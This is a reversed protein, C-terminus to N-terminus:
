RQNMYENIGNVMGQVMKAQYDSSSMLRDEEPNSMFGMEVITSPVTCWNIGSMADTRWVGRNQAGTISAMQNVVCQSLKSSSPYLAACYPNQATQCATLVGHISTDNSGNIHIRIFVDAKANNAIEAREKNSINVDHSERVMIVQYGQASLAQKLQKAVALTVQYEPIKTVIGTTGSAVKPKQVSAGPGIPELSSNGKGQHGADIVIVGSGKAVITQPVKAQNKSAKQAALEADKKKKADLMAKKQAEQAEQEKQLAKLKIEQEKKVAVEKMKLVAKKLTAELNKSNEVKKHNAKEVKIKDKNSDSQNNKNAGCGTIFMCVFLLLILWRSKKM